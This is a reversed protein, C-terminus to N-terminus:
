SKSNEKEKQKIQGILDFVTTKPIDTIKSWKSANPFEKAILKAKLKEFNTNKKELINSLVEHPDASDGSNEPVQDGMDDIKSGKNIEEEGVVHIKLFNRVCRTFARNEAITELFPRVFPDCNYITANALSEFEIERFDTEYNGIWQIKCGVSVYESSVYNVKYSVSDFGRLFALYKIGPLLIFLDKDELEEVNKSKAKEKPALHEKKLMKRWDVYGSEDYIYEVGAVLGNELRKVKEEM